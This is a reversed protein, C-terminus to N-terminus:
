PSSVGETVALSVVVHADIGERCSARGIEASWVHVLSSSFRSTTESHPQKSGGQFRASRPTPLDPALPEVTWRPLDFIEPLPLSDALIHTTPTANRFRRRTAASWARVILMTWFWSALAFLVG